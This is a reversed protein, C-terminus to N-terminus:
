GRQGRRKKLIKYTIIGSVVCLAAIAIVVGVWEPIEVVNYFEQPLQVPIRKFRVVVSTNESIDSLVLKYDKCIYEPEGDVYMTYTSLYNEGDLEYHEGNVTISDIMYGEEPTVIIEKASGSELEYLGSESVAGNGGKVINLFTVTGPETLRFLHTDNVDNYYNIYYFTQGDGDTGTKVELYRQEFVDYVSRNETLKITKIGSSASHVAIYASNAHVIDSPNESYIHVGAMKLINRYIDASILPASCYISSWEGMDKYVLGAKGSGILNGLVTVGATEEAYVEHIFYNVSTNKAGFVKGFLGQMVPSSDNTIEIQGPYRGGTNMGFEFGTLQTMNAFDYGSENGYGSLYFFINIQGDNKCYKDIQAREYESLVYPTFFINIKHKPMKGAVLTSLAYVDYGAGMKDLAKRHWTYIYQSIVTQHSYLGNGDSTDTVALYSHNKDPMILAVENVTDKSLYNYLTLEDNLANTFTYLQDDDFWGGTMDYFWQANGDAINFATDRKLQKITDEMTHTTGIAFDRSDFGIGAALGTLVTRNDQEAIVLKGYQMITDTVAQLYRGEGIQRENYGVPSAFFDVVDSNLVRELAPHSVRAGDYNSGIFLYGYYAGVVLKYDTAEKAVTAWHLLLDATMEGLMQRADILKRDKVPDYLLASSPVGNEDERKFERYTPLSIDEFSKLTDDGWAERVGEITGYLKKAYDKFYQQAADSYDALYGAGDGGWPFWEATQGFNLRIGVIRSYYVQEKIHAIIERLLESAEDRWLTSAMSVNNGHTFYLNGDIDSTLNREGPHQEMWWYPAQMRVTFILNATPSAALISNVANDVFDLDLSGNEKYINTMNDGDGLSIEYNVYTELGSKGMNGYTKETNFTPTTFYVNPMPEDNVVLTPTGNIVKVESVVERSEYNNYVKFSVFKNDAIDTNTIVFYTDALQLSYNGTDIYDPLTVRLKIETWKGAEWETMSPGSLIEPTVSCYSTISNKRWLVFTFPVEKEIPEEPRVRLTFEYVLDTVEDVEGDDDPVEVELRNDVYLASDFYLAGWPNMPPSGLVVSHQWASDDFDTETWATDAFEGDYWCLTEGDSICHIEHETVGDTVTWIGDFIMGAYAGQNYAEVALVNKGPVLYDQLETTNIESWSSSANGITSLVLTGNVYLAVQDDATFQLPAYVAELGTLDVTKRYYISSNEKSWRFDSNYNIWNASWTMEAKASAGREVSIGAVDLTGGGPNFLMLDLYTASPSVFTIRDSRWASSPTLDYTLREAEYERHMYDSFRLELKVANESRYILYLTYEYATELTNVTYRMYDGGGSVLRGYYVKNNNVTESGHTLVTDSPAFSGDTVSWGSINGSEDQAHLDNYAVIISNDDEVQRVSVDDIWIEAAGETLSFVPVIYKAEQSVDFRTYVYSWESREPGSNLTKKAGTTPSTISDVGSSCIKLGNEDYYWIDLQITKFDSNRSSVWFSVEYIRKRGATNVPILASSVISQPTLLTDTKLYMSSGGSHYVDNVVRFDYARDQATSAYWGVPAGDATASEFDLNAANAYETIKVEDIWLTHGRQGDALAIELSFVLYAADDGSTFFHRGNVWGEPNNEGATKGYIRFIWPPNYSNTSAYYPYDEAANGNYVLIDSPTGDAKYLQVRMYVFAEENMDANLWYSVEYTKGPLIKIQGSKISGNTVNDIRATHEGSLGTKVNDDETIAGATSSWGTGGLEFGLNILAEYSSLECSLTKLYFDADTGSEAYISIDAYQAGAPMNFAAEANQWDETDTLSVSLYFSEAEALPTRDRDAYPTVRVKLSERAEANGRFAFSINYEYGGYVGTLVTLGGIDTLATKSVHVSNNEAKGCDGLIGFNDPYSGTSSAFSGNLIGTSIYEDSPTLRVNAFYASATETFEARGILRPEFTASEFGEGVFFEYSYYQWETAPEMCNFIISASSGRMTVQSNVENANGTLKYYFSFTYKRGTELEASPKVAAWTIATATHTGATKEIVLANGFTGDSQVTVTSKADTGKVSWGDLGSSFDGNAILESYEELVFDSFTYFTKNEGNVSIVLRMDAFNQGATFDARGTKYVENTASLPVATEAIKEGSATEFYVEGQAEDKFLASNRYRFSLTYKEGPILSETIPDNKVTISEGAAKELRLSNGLAAGAGTIINEETIGSWGDTGYFYGNKLIEGSSTIRIDALYIKDVSSWGSYFEFGIYGSYNEQATYEATCKKWQPVTIRGIKLDAGSPDRVAGDRLTTFASAKIIPAFRMTDSVADGTKVWYTLTYTRGAEFNIDAKYIGSVSGSSIGAVSMVRGHVPDELQEFGYNVVATNPAPDWNATDFSFLNNEEGRVKGPAAPLFYAMAALAFFMVALAALWIKIKLLKM